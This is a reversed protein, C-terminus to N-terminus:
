LMAMPTRTTPWCTRRTSSWRRIRPLPSRMMPRSRRAIERVWTINVRGNASLLGDTVRYTFGGLGVFGQDPTFVFRDSLVQVSGGVVNTVLDTVSISSDVDSDNALLAARTIQLATRNNTSLSDDVAVPADNVASLTITM